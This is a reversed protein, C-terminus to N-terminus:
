IGTDVLALKFNMQTTLKALGRFYVFIALCPAGNVQMAKKIPSKHCTPYESNLVFM